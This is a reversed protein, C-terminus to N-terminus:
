VFDLQAFLGFLQTHASEGVQVAEGPRRLESPLVCVKQLGGSGPRDM